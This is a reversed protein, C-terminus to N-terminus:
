QRQHHARWQEESSSPQLGGTGGTGGDGPALAYRAQHHGPAPPHYAGNNSNYNLAEHSWRPEGYDMHSHSRVGGETPRPLGAAHRPLYIYDGASNRLANGSPRSGGHEGRQTALILYRQRETHPSAHGGGPGRDPGDRRRRRAPVQLEPLHCLQQPLSDGRRTLFTQSQDWDTDPLRMTRKQQLPTQEPTPLLGPDMEGKSWGNPM